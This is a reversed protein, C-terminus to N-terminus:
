VTFWPSKVQYMVGQAAQPAYVVPVMGPGYVMNGQVGLPMQVGVPPAGTVMPVMGQPYALGVSTPAPNNAGSVNQAMQYLEGLSEQRKQPPKKASLDLSIGSLDDFQSTTPASTTPNIVPAATGASLSSSSPDSSTMPVLTQPLAQTHHDLLAPQTAYSVSSSSSSSSPVMAAPLPKHDVSDSRILSDSRKLPDFEVDEEFTLLSDDGPPAQDQTPQQIMALPLQPDQHSSPSGTSQDPGSESL